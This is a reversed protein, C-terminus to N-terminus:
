GVRRSSRSVRVDTVDSPKIDGFQDPLNAIEANFITVNSVVRGDVLVLDVIQYGMGTEPMRWLRDVIEPRLELQMGFNEATL